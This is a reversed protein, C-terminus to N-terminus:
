LKQGGTEGGRPTQVASWRGRGRGTTRRKGDKADSNGWKGSAAAYGLCRSFRAQLATWTMGIWRGLNEPAKPRGVRSSLVIFFLRSKKRFVKPSPAPKTAAGRRNAAGCAPIAPISM